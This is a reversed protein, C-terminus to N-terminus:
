EDRWGRGWAMESSAEGRQGGRTGLNWGQDLAQPRMRDSLSTLYSHFKNPDQEWLTM